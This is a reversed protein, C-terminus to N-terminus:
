SPCASHQAGGAPGRLRMEGLLLGGRGRVHGVLMGEPLAVTADAVCPLTRHRPGGIGASGSTTHQLM